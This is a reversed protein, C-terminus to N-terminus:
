LGHPSISQSRWPGTPKSRLPAPLEPTQTWSASGPQPVSLGLTETPASDQSTVNTKEDVVQEVSTMASLQPAVPTGVRSEAPQRVSASQPTTLPLEDATERADQILRQGAFIFALSGLVFLYLGWHPLIVVSPVASFGPGTSTVTALNTLPSLMLWVACTFGLCLCGIAFPLASWVPHSRLAPVFVPVCAFGLLVVLLVAPLGFETLAKYTVNNVAVWPLLEDAALALAICVIIRGLADRPPGPTQLGGLGISPQVNVANSAAAVSSAAVAGNQKATSAGENPAASALGSLPAGCVPCERALRPAETGCRLCFM